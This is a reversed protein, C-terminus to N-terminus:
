VMPATPAIMLEGVAKAAKLRAQQQDERAIAKIENWAAWADQKNFCKSADHRILAAEIRHVAESETM